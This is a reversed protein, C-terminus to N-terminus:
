INNLISEWSEEWGEDHTNKEFSIIKCKSEDANMASVYSDVVKRPVIRDEGGVYHVQQINRLKNVYDIPNLSDELMPVKHHESHLKHDLNGAITVLLDVDDRQAAILAALTGGGSFGFLQISQMGNDKCFRSVVNNISAVVEESFRHTTWYKQISSVDDFVTVFQYPRAIYLINPSTDQIALKLAIPNRPTPNNSPRGNGTFAYGDGEFYVHLPQTKDRIRNYVALSFPDAIIERYNLGANFAIRSAKASYNIFVCGPSTGLLAAILIIKLIRRKFMAQWIYTLFM